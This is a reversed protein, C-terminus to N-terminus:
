PYYGSITRATLRSPTMKVEVKRWTDPRIGSARKPVYALLYQSRLEEEIQKYIGELGRTSDVYFTTGGSERAIKNLKARIDFHSSGIRLGIFYVPIGSKKAYDLTADFEFRSSRDDGDTLVVFAKRGRAGQFQFLGYVIADWLTTSGQTRLSAIGQVLRDRDTTFPTILRPENDFSILITRDRPTTVSKLFGAAARQADPLSEEMSGSTDIGIALSLPLDRVVEFGDIVQPLGDEFVAFSEKSLGTVPKGHDHVSTYLEVAEVNVESLYKPANYYHVDEAQTGDELVAVVRVLGIERSKPVDVVELFPAEKRTKVRTENVYFDVQKLTKTVPVTVDAALRTPGALQAGKAPASIHVRFTERGENLVREDESIATGDRGRGIVKVVHRRPLSGLDLDADFPPRRKTVVKVGDLFFEMAVIDPSSVRTEFRVLETLIERAIPLLSVSGKGLDPSAVLRAVAARAEERAKRDEPTLSADPVEPVVILEDIVGAANRNGDAVKVRLLYEGPFLEREVTLPVFSGTLGDAPFDFRYRFNDVLKGKRVVEGVVDVDFFRESGIVKQGLSEKELLLGLEMRVKFATAEPFRLLRQVALKEAGPSVDTTLQLIRDVGEPDVKPGERLEQTMKLSTATGFLASVSGLAAYVDRWEPCRSVDVQRSLGTAGMGPLGGVLIAQQGDLPTWLKYPGAGFSQYFVLIVKSLRLADLREYYWIQIPWFVDECSVRKVGDPPGHLLYIRGQDSEVNGFQEKATQLRSEYVERFMGGLETAGGDRRKWFDDVFRDRQYDSPLRLFTDRELDTIIPEVDSLFSRYKEPLAGTLKKRERYALPGSRTPPPPTAEAAPAQIRAAVTTAREKLAGDPTAQRKSIASLTSLVAQGEPCSDVNTEQLPRTVRTSVLSREGDVLTWYRYLGTGSEPYFIMQAGRGLSPHDLYSWIEIERFLDACKVLTRTDPPGSAVHVVARDDDLRKFLALAQKGRGVDAPPGSPDQSLFALLLPVALMRKLKRM